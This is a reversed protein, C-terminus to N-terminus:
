LHGNDIIKKDESFGPYQNVFVTLAHTAMDLERSSYALQRTIYPMESNDFFGRDLINTLGMIRALPGKIEHSTRFAVSELASVAKRNKEELVKRESISLGLILLYPSAENQAKVPMVVMDVWLFSGHKMKWKVEGRWTRHSHVTEFFADIESQSHGSNLILFNQGALEEVAYGTAEVFPANMKIFNGQWDTTASYLNVNIADMYAQLEASKQKVLLDLNESFTLLEENSAKLAQNVSKIEQNAVSLSDAYKNVLARFALSQAVVGFGSLFMLSNQIIIYPVNPDPVFPHTADYWVYFAYCAFASMFATLISVLRDFVMVSCCGLAILVYETGTRRDLLALILILGLLGYIVLFGALKLRGRSNLYLILALVPIVSLGQLASYSGLSAFTIVFLLTLVISIFLFANLAFLRMQQGYDMKSHYGIRLLINWYNSFQTIM